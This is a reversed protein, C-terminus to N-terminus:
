VVSNFFIFNLDVQARTDGGQAPITIQTSAGLYVTVTNEGCVVGYVSLGVYNINQAGNGISAIGKTTATVGHEALTPITIGIRTTNPIVLSIGETRTQLNISGGIRGVEYNAILSYSWSWGPSGGIDFLNSNDETNISGIGTTQTMYVTTPAAVDSTAKITQSSVTGTATIDAQSTIDGTATITEGATISSDAEIIGKSAINGATLTGTVDLDGAVNLDDNITLLDIIANTAVINEANVNSAYLTSTTLVGFNETSNEIYFSM